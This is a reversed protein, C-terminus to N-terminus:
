AAGRCGRRRPLLVDARTGACERVSSWGGEHTPPSAKKAAEPPTPERPAPLSSDTPPASPLWDTAPPEAPTSRPPNHPPRCRCPMLAPRALCLEHARLYALAWWLLDDYSSDEPANTILWQAPYHAFSRRMAAAVRADLDGGPPAAGGDALLFNAFTECLNAEQWYGITWPPRATDNM